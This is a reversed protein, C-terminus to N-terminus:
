SSACVADLAMRARASRTHIDCKGLDLACVIEILIHVINKFFLLLRKRVWQEM